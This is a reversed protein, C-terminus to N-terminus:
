GKVCNRECFEIVQRDLDNLMDKQEISNYIELSTTFYKKRFAKRAKAIRLEIFKVNGEERNIIDHGAM